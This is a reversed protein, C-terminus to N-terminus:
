SKKEIQSTINMTSMLSFSMLFERHELINHSFFAWTLILASFALRIAQNSAPANHTSCFVLLPLVLAGLFGHELMFSLYMNHSRINALEPHLEGLRLGYGIGNGWIPSELFKSWTIKVISLRDSTSDDIHDNSLNILNLRTLSNAPNIDALNGMDLWETGAINLIIAAFVGLIALWLFSKKIDIEHKIILIAVVFLLCITGSRSFTPFSGIIIILIFPFRYIQPLLNISFIMGLILVCTARNSDVYFGSSRGTALSSQNEVITVFADPYFLGYINAIVNMFTIVLIVCRAWNQVRPYKSFIFIAILIFVASLIRTRLEESSAQPHDNSYVLYSILSILLYTYIWLILAKSIYKIRSSFSLFLPISAIAFAIIWIKPEPTGIAHSWYTDFNTFFVCIFATALAYQYYVIFSDNKAKSM